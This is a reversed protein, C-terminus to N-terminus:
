KKAATPAAPPTQFKGTLWDWTLKAPDSILKETLSIGWFPEKDRKKVGVNVYLPGAVRIAAAFSLNDTLSEAPKELNYYSVSVGSLRWLINRKWWSHGNYQYYLTFGLNNPKFPFGGKEEEIFGAMVSNRMEM